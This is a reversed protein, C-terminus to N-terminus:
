VKELDINFFIKYMKKQFWNYKKPLYIIANGIKFKSKIKEEESLYVYLPRNDVTPESITGSIIAEFM